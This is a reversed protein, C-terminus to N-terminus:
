ANREKIYFRRHAARGKIVQGVMETTIIREPSGAQLPVRCSYGEVLAAGNNGLKELIEAKAADVASTAAREREKADLYEQCLEPMRNERRLDVLTDAPDNFLADITDGDRAYDPKPPKGGRVSEWFNAVRAEIDAYIVPRFQYQFRRLENGGVLVIVDGWDAHDLGQYTQSQLLYHAPPEDGWQKAVLWDAMKVELIGRGRTPCMVRADPHGGLGRGNSLRGPADLMRYGWRECAAEIVVAELKVGWYVRENEPSGDTVANFDPTAIAGSKRHWLEFHTLWPSCGFLAAVESAGVHQARFAADDVNAPANM